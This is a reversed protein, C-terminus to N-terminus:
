VLEEIVKVNLPLRVTEPTVLGADNVTTLVTLSWATVPFAVTFSLRLSKLSAIGFMGKTALTSSSNVTVASTTAGITCYPNLNQCAMAAFNVPLAAPLM